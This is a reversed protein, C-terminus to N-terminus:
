FGPVNNRSFIYRSTLMKASAVFVLFSVFFKIPIDICIMFVFKQKGVGMSKVRQSKVAM